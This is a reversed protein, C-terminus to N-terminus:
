YKELARVSDVRDIALQAKLEELGAFKMENRLRKIFRVKLTQDYLDDSLDFLHVEITKHSHDEITPRIGINLMGKHSTGNWEAIVAYVGDPPIQKFEYSCEVNATPFGITQGIRNGRVVKGTLFYTYGLLENASHLDGDLLCNRIRTSSIRTDNETHTELRVVDFGNSKGSETLLELNGAGGSGFRLEDGVVIIGPKICGNLFEDLFQNASLSAFERTFPVVLLHGIGFSDLLGTKEELSTLLKFDPDAKGLVIRPHPWFTIILTEAGSAAARDKLRSLLNQHGRHVGDFIGISVSPYNLKLSCPDTHVQM